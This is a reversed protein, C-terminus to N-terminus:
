TQEEHQGKNEAKRTPTTKRKNGAMRTFWNTGAHPIALHLLLLHMGQLHSNTVQWRAEEGKVMLSDM